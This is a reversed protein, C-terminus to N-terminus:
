SPPLAFCCRAVLSRLGLSACRQGPWAAGSHASLLVGPSRSQTLGHRRRGGSRRDACRTRRVFWRPWFAADETRTRQVMACRNSRSGWASPQSLESNGTTQSSQKPGFGYTRMCFARPSQDLACCTADSRRCRLAGRRSAHPESRLTSCAVVGGVRVRAAERPQAPPTRCPTGCRRDGM